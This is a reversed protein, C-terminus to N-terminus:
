QTGQNFLKAAWEAAASPPRGSLAALARQRSLALFSPWAAFSQFSPDPHWAEVLVGALRDLDSEISASAFRIRSGDGFAISRDVTLVRHRAGLDHLREAATVWAERSVKPTASLRVVVTRTNVLPNM